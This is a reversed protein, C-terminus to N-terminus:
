ALSSDVDRQESGGAGMGCVFVSEHAVVSEQDGGSLGEKERSGLPWHYSSTTSELAM